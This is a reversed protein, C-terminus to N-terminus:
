FFISEDVKTGQGVGHIFNTTFNEIHISIRHNKIHIGLILSKRQKKTLVIGGCGEQHMKSFFQNRLKQESVWVMFFTLILIKQTVM